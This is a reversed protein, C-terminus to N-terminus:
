RTAIAVAMAMSDSHTLSLQWGTVGREDALVV